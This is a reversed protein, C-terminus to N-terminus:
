TGMVQQLSNNNKGVKANFDGLVIKIDGTPITNLAAELQNYFNDKSEEDDPETPAYCQLITIKRYKSNLRAKVIRDSFPVYEILAKKANASLLLGVGNIKNSTHGSYIFTHGSQLQKSGKDLWRTESLGLIDLKYSDFEKCVQELRSPSSLTRVNWTGIMIRQKFGYTTMTNPSNNNLNTPTETIIQKKHTHTILM